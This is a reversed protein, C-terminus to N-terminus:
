SARRPLRVLGALGAPSRSLASARVGGDPVRDLIAQDEAILPATDKAAGTDAQHRAMLAFLIRLAKSDRRAADNVLGRVIAERMTIHRRRGNEQIPVRSDLARELISRLDQPAKSRGKPNGSQGTKFRSGIPPRGHGVAYDGGSRAPKPTRSM